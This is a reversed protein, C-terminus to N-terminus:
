PSPTEVPRQVASTDLTNQWQRWGYVALVMFTFFLGVTVWYGQLAWLNIFITDSILWCLWTGIYKKSLMWQASFAVSTAFADFYPQFAQTQSDLLYGIAATGLIWFVINKLWLAHTTHRIPARRDGEAQKTQTTDSHSQKWHWWGYFSIFIFVVNLVMNAYLGAQFALFVYISYCLIFTPWTLIKEKISFWVGLIGAVTGIYEIASAAKFYAILTDLM